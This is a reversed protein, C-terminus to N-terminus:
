RIDASASGSGAACTHSCALPSRYPRSGSAPKRRTTRSASSSAVTSISMVAGSLPMLAAGCIDGARSGTYLGVLIFRAIHRSTYHSFRGGRFVTERKLRWATRILKAAEDRTLWRERAEPADPLVPSFRMQIGGVKKKLYRNIAAALIKLDRYAAIPAPEDTVVNTRVGDVRKTVIRKRESAYREQLEGDLDGVSRNGFWNGVNQCLSILEKKREDPMRASAIRRMELLLIDAIKAQNPDAKRIAEEPKHQALIFAALERNAGDRDRENCGTSKTRQGGDYRIVWLKQRDAYEKLELYPGKSKRPM